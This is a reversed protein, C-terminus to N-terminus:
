FCFYYDHWYYCFWYCISSCVVVVCAPGVYGVIKYSLSSDVTIDTVLLLLLLLPIMTNACSSRKDFSRAWSNKQGQGCCKIELVSKAGSSSLKLKRESKMRGYAQNLSSCSLTIIKFERILFSVQIYKHILVRRERTSEMKKRPCTSPCPTPSPPTCSLTQFM